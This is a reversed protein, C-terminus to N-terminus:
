VRVAGSAVLRTDHTPREHTLEPLSHDLGGKHLDMPARGKSGCFLTPDDAVLLHPIDRAEAWRAVGFAWHEAKRRLKALLAIAAIAAFGPYMATMVAVPMALLLVSLINLLRLLKM